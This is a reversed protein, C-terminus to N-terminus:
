QRSTAAAYRNIAVESVSGGYIKWPPPDSTLSVKHACVPTSGYFTMSQLTRGTRAVVVQVAQAERYRIVQGVKGDSVRRYRGCSGVKVEREPHVCVVLQIPGPWEDGLWKANIDYWTTDIDGWSDVVVLPHVAGAYGAASPIPTRVCASALEAATAVPMPSPTPVPTPLSVPEVTPVPEFTSVPEFTPVPEVTPATAEAVTTPTRTAPMTPTPMGPSTAPPTASTPVPNSPSTISGECAAVLMAVVILLAGIVSPFRLQTKGITYMPV